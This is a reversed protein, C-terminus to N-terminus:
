PKQAEALLWAKALRIKRSQGAGPAHAIYYAKGNRQTQELAQVLRGSSVADQALFQPLLALGMGSAAAEIVMFFHEFGPSQRTDPAALGFHACYRQWADPRTTHQLLRHAPLDAPSRLPPGQELWRPAAFVAVDERMFLTAETHPWQGMGYRVGIDVPETAFNVLRENTTIDVLIDPHQQQFRPLRPVLWRMAFTPLVSIGLVNGGNLQRVSRTASAIRGLADEIQPHYAAGAATLQLSRGLRHFLPMGLDAELTQVMRSIAGQTVHLERAALTFSLHRAAADFSRVANLSPLRKDTTPQM